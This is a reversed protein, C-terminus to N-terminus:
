DRPEIKFPNNYINDPCIEFYDMMLEVSPNSTANRGRVYIPGDKALTVQGLICRQPSDGEGANATERLSKPSNGNNCLWSNPGKMFGKARMEKDNEEIEERSLGNDSIWGHQKVTQTLDVPIGCPKLNDPDTGIYFQACGRTGARTYGMRIEYTGAPVPPLRLIFDYSEYAMWEDGQYGNRGAGPPENVNPQVLVFATQDSLFKINSLYGEPFGTRAMNVNQYRWDNSMAEPFISSCDLRFRMKKFDSRPFTLISKLEHIYGNETQIENPLIEVGDKTPRAWGEKANFVVENDPSPNLQVMEPNPDIGGPWAHGNRGASVYIMTNPALTEAWEQIRAYQPALGLTYRTFDTRDMKKNLIHYAVFRNLYHDPDTIDVSKAHEVLDPMDESYEREFWELAYQKILEVTDAGPVALEPIAAEYVEDPELFMTFAFKRKQPTDIYADWPPLYPSWDRQSPEFDYDEPVTNMRSEVKTAEFIKGFISYQPYEDFFESLSRDVPELVKDIRHLYGNHCKIDRETIIALGNICYSTGATDVYIVKDYLNVDSLKASFDKSPYTLSNKSSSVVHMQAILDIISDVQAPEFYNSLDKMSNCDPGATRHFYELMADNDPAFCTYYGYSSLLSAVTADTTGQTGTKLKSKGLFEVFLSFDPNESLYSEVTNGTFTYYSESPIDDNKCSPLMVTSVAGIMLAVFAWGFHFKKKM